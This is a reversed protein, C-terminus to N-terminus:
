LKEAHLLRKRLWIRSSTMSRSAALILTLTCKVTLKTSLARKVKVWHSPVPRWPLCNSKQESQQGSHLEASLRINATSWFTRLFTSTPDCGLFLSKTSFWVTLIGAVACKLVATRWCTSRATLTKQSQSMLPVVAWTMFLSFAMRNPPACSVWLRPLLSKCWHLMILVQLNPQRYHPM